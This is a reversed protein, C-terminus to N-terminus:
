AFKVNQDSPAGLRFPENEIKILFVTLFEVANDVKQPAVDRKASFDQLVEKTEDLRDWLSSDFDASLYKKVATFKKFAYIEDAGFFLEEQAALCSGRSASEFLSTLDSIVFDRRKVDELEGRLLSLADEIVHRMGVDSTHVIGAVM